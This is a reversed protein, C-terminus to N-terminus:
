KIKIILEIGYINGNIKGIDLLGPKEEGKPINENIIFSTGVKLGIKKYMIGVKLNVSNQSFPGIFTDKEKPILTTRYHSFSTEMIFINKEIGSVVGLTYAGAIMLPHFGLEVGYYPNFSKLKHIRLLNIKPMITIKSEGGYQFLFNAKYIINSSNNNITTNLNKTSDTNSYKYKEIENKNLNYINITTYEKKTTKLKNYDIHNIKFCNCHYFLTSDICRKIFRKKSIKEIETKTYINAGILFTNIINDTTKNEILIKKVPKKSSIFIENKSDIILIDSKKQANIAQALGLISLIIFFAKTM